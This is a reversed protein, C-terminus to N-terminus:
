TRPAVVIVEATYAYYAVKVMHIHRSTGFLEPHNKYNSASVLDQVSVAVYAGSSIARDPLDRRGCVGLRGVSSSVGDPM